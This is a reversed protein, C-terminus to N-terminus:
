SSAATDRWGADGARSRGRWGAGGVGATKALVRGRGLSRGCIVASRIIMKFLKSLARTCIWLAGPLRVPLLTRKHAYTHTHTHKTHTCTHIQTHAQYTHTHAHVQICKNSTHTHTDQNAIHTDKRTHHTHTQKSPIHTHTHMIAMHTHTDPGEDNM